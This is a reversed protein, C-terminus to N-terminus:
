GHDQYSPTSHSIKRSNPVVDDSANEVAHADHIAFLAPTFISSFM